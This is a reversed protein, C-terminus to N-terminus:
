GGVYLIHLDNVMKVIKWPCNPVNHLETSPQDKGEGDDAPFVPQEQHHVNQRRGSDPFLTPRDGLIPFGIPHVM